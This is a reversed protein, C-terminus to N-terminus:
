ERGVGYREIWLGRHHLEHGAIMWALARVTVRSGAAEGARNWADPALGDLLAVTGERVAAWEALHRPLPRAAANAREAWVDHEMSPLAVRAGRAIWLVRHCFVREVDVM